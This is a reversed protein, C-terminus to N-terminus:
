NIQEYAAKKGFRLRKIVLVLSGLLSIVIPVGLGISLILYVKTSITSDPPDGYGM